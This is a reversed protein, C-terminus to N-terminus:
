KKAQTVKKACELLGFYRAEADLGCGEIASSTILVHSRRWLPTYLQRRHQQQQMFVSAQKVGNGSVTHMMQGLIRDVDVDVFGGRNAGGPPMQSSHFLSYYIDPQFRGVWTLIYTQFNGKKINGYFTGWEASHIELKIGVQALQQQLVQALRQIFPNTTIALALKLRVGNKDSHFGAEELLEIAKAPNYALPKYSVHAPHTPMLLSDAVAAQGHLLHKIIDKRNIAHAVARRVAASATIEGERLNYGIYTYSASPVTFGNLGHELAYAYLEPPVDGHVVDVEGRQLKLIRVMPDKISIFDIEQPGKGRVKALKIHGGDEKEILQYPGTGVPNNVMHEHLRTVPVTLVSWFFPNPKDLVFVLKAPSPAHVAVVNKLGGRLPSATKPDLISDFFAKIERATAPTGDHFTRTPDLTFEFRKFGQQKINRALVPVPNFNEDYRLLPEAILQLLRSSAAGTAFRADFTVPARAIAVRLTQGSPPSTLSSVILGGAAVLLLFAVAGLPWNKIRQLRIHM